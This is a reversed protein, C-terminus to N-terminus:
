NRLYSFLGFGTFLGNLCNVLFNITWFFNMFFSLIFGKMSGTLELSDRSCFTSLLRSLIGSYWYISMVLLFYICFFLIIALSFFNWCSMRMIFCLM